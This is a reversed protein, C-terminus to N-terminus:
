PPGDSFEQVMMLKENDRAMGVGFHTSKPCVINYRHNMQDKPESMFGSEARNVLEAEPAQGLGQFALNESVPSAIGAMKGRDQPSHGEADVHAFMRHKILYEAYTRALKTLSGSVQLTAVGERKRDNNVLDCMQSELQGLDAAPYSARPVGALINTTDTHINVYHSRKAMMEATQTDDDIRAFTVTIDGNASSLISDLAAASGVVKNDVMLIVDGPGLGFSQWQGGVRACSTIFLGNRSSNNPFVVYAPVGTVGMRSSTEQRQSRAYVAQRPRAAQKAAESSPTISALAVSFLAVLAAALAAPSRLWRSVPEQRRTHRTEAAPMQYRRKMARKSLFIHWAIM